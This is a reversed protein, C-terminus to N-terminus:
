DNRDRLPTLPKPNHAPSSVPTTGNNNAQGTVAAIAANKQQFLKHQQPSMNEKGQGLQRLEGLWLKDNAQSLEAVLDNKTDLEQRLRLLDLQQLSIKEKLQSVNKTKQRNNCSSVLENYKDSTQQCEATLRECSQEYEKVQKELKERQDKENELLQRLSAIEDQFQIKAEQLDYKKEEIQYKKDQLSKIEEQLTSLKANLQEIEIKHQEVQQQFALKNDKIALNKEDLQQCLKENELQLRSVQISQEDSLQEMKLLMDTAEKLRDSMERLSERLEANRESKFNCEKQVKALEGIATSKLYEIKANFNAKAENIDSASKEEMQSILEVKEDIKDTISDLQEQVLKSNLTITDFLDRYGILSADRAVLERQLREVEAESQELRRTLAAVSLQNEAMVVEFRKRRAVMEASETRIQDKLNRLESKKEVLEAEARDLEAQLSQSFSEQTEVTCKIEDLAATLRIVEIDRQALKVNLAAKESELRDLQGNYKETAQRLEDESSSKAERVLVNVKADTEAIVRRVREESEARCAKLTERTVAEANEVMKNACEKMRKKEDDIRKEMAKKVEALEENRATTMNDLEKLYESRAEELLDKLQMQEDTHIKSTLEMEAKHAAVAKTYKDNASELEAKVEHLTRSMDKYLKQVDQLEETLFANTEVMEALKAQLEVIADRKAELQQELNEREENFNDRSLEIEREYTVKLDTVFKRIRKLFSEVGPHFSMNEINWKGDYNEYDFYEQLVNTMDDLLQTNITLVQANTDDNFNKIDAELESVRSESVRLKAETEKLKNDTEHQLALLETVTKDKLILAQNLEETKEDLQQTALELKKMKEMMEEQEQLKELECMLLTIKRRLEEELMTKEYMADENKKLINTLEAQLAEVETQYKDNKDEMAQQQLQTYIQMAELDKQYREEAQAHKKLLVEYKEGADQLEAKMDEMHKEYELLTKDKNACEVKLDALEQLPEYPVQQQSQQQQQPQQHQHQPDKNENNVQYLKTKIRPCSMGSTKNVLRRKPVQPTRFQKASSAASTLASGSTTGGRSSVSANCDAGSSTTSKADQNFRATPKELVPARVKSDFKPDYAGPPPAVSTTLENFRQIRAKSFSM